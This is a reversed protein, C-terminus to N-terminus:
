PVARYHRPVVALDGHLPARTDCTTRPEVVPEVQQWAMALSAQMAPYTTMWYTDTRGHRVVLVNTAFGGIQSTQEECVLKYGAGFVDYVSCPTPDGPHKM